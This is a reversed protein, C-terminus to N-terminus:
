SGGDVGEITQLRRLVAQDSEIRARLRAQFEPDARRRAIYAAIAERVVQSVPKGEIRALLVLQDYLSVPLRITTVYDAM